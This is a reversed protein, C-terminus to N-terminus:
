KFLNIFKRGINRKKIVDEINWNINCNMCSAFDDWSIVPTTTRYEDGLASAILDDLNGNEYYKKDDLKFILKLCSSDKTYYNSLYNSDLKDLLVLLRINKFDSTKSILKKLQENSKIKTKGLNSDSSNNKSLDYYHISEIKFRDYFMEDIQDRTLDVFPRGLEEFLKLHKM